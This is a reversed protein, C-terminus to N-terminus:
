NYKAPAPAPYAHAAVSAPPSGTGTPSDPPLGPSPHSPAPRGPPAAWGPVSRLLSPCSDLGAPAPRTRESVSPPASCPSHFVSVKLGKLTIVLDKYWIHNYRCWMVYRHVIPPELPSLYSLRPSVIGQPTLAAPRGWAWHVAMSAACHFERTDTQPALVSDWETQLWRISLCFFFTKDSQWSSHFQIQTTSKLSLIQHIHLLICSHIFSLQFNIGCTPTVDLVCPLKTM